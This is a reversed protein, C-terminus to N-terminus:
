KCFDYNPMFYNNNDLFLKVGNTFEFNIKANFIQASAVSGYVNGAYFGSAVATFIWGRFNHDHEFNTYALYGFLGTLLFATIGDSYNQTYIKGAGPILASLIGAVTEIKYHPDTKQDYLKLADNKENSVFQMLFNNKDPHKNTLLNYISQLKLANTSFQSKSAIISDSESIFKASDNLLFYTKLKEIRSAEYFSSTSKIKSFKEIASDYKEMELFGLAIKFRISDDENIRLYSEYEDIARLYDKECFLYNAFRKINQPSKLDLQQAFQFSNLIVLYVLLLKKM